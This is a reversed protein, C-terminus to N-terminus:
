IASVKGQRWLHKWERAVEELTRQVLERRETSSSVRKPVESFLYDNYLNIEEPLDQDIYPCHPPPEDFIIKWIDRWQEAEDVSQDSRQSLKEKTAETIGEVTGPRVECHEEETRRLHADRELLTSFVEFCRPCHPPVIHARVLHQKVYSIKSLKLRACPQYTKPNFKYFPCALTIAGPPTARLSARSKQPM